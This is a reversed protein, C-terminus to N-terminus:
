EAWNPENLAVLEDFQEESHAVLTRTTGDEFTKVGQIVPVTDQGIRTTGPEDIEWGKPPKWKKKEAM